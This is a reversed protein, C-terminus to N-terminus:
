KVLELAACAGAEAFRACAGAEEALAAALTADAEDRHVCVCM